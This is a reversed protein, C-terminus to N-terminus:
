FVFYDCSSKEVSEKKTCKTHRPQKRADSLDLSRIAHDQDKQFHHNPTWKLPVMTCDVDAIKQVRLLAHLAVHNTWSIVTSGTELKKSSSHRISVYFWVPPSYNAWMQSAFQQVLLMMFFTNPCTGFSFLLFLLCIFGNGEMKYVQMCLLSMRSLWHKDRKKKEELASDSQWARRLLKLLCLLIGTSILFISSRQPCELLYIYVSCAPHLVAGPGPSAQWAEREGKQWTFGHTSFLSRSLLILKYFMEGGAPKQWLCGGARLTVWPVPIIIFPKM